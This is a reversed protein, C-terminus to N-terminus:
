RRTCRHQAIPLATCHEAPPLSPPSPPGATAIAGRPHPGTTIWRCQPPLHTLWVAWVDCCLELDPAPSLARPGRSDDPPPLPLRVPHVGTVATVEQKQLFAHVGDRAAPAPLPPPPVPAAGYLHTPTIGLVRELDGRTTIALLLLPTGPREQWLVQGRHDAGRTRSLVPSPQDLRPIRADGTPPHPM